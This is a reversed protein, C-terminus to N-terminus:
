AVRLRRCSRMATLWFMAQPHTLSLLMCLSLIRFRRYRAKGKDMDVIANNADSMPREQIWPHIGKKEALALMEEIKRPSGIASGGLKASKPILNFANFPPFVDEPAGVQIFNGRPRLMRLYQQLPMKPSSVTCVILDLSNAHHKSWDKDEDTAVYEDAGLKLVDERKSASRSFGVVKSAGLAKAFLVGFHGLGGVGVIGVRKGPGCGNDTLPSYVTVGGCLMPAAEAPNLGSPIKLVFHGPIRAYNAHGGYSKSGDAFKAGYTPVMHQCHQEEDNMCSECDPKLCSESQAGVGVIDGVKIDRKVEKGM